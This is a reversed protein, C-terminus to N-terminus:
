QALSRSSLPTSLSTAGSRLWSSFCSASTSEENLRTLSHLTHNSVELRIGLRLGGAQSPQALHRCMPADQGVARDEIFLLSRSRGFASMSETVVVLPTIRCCANSSSLELFSMELSS